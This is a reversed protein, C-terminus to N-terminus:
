MLRVVRIAKEPSSAAGIVNEDAGVSGRLSAAGVLSKVPGWWAGKLLLGKNLWGGGLGKRWEPM